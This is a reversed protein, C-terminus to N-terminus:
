LRAAAAVPGYNRCSIGYLVRRPPADDAAGTGRLPPYSRLPIEARESQVRPVRVEGLCRKRKLMRRVVSGM